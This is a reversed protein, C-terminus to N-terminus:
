RPYIKRLKAMVARKMARIDPEFGWIKESEAGQYVLMDVGNITKAGAAEAERLLRTKPPTYIIDNVVMDPHMLERTVLTEDSMMGVPTANVLIDIDPLHEKLQSLPCVHVEAGIHHVEEAIEKAKELTRNAITIDARSMLTFIIARAAGGAGLVMIHKHDVKVGNKELAEV